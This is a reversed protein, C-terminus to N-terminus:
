TQLLNYLSVAKPLPSGSSGVPQAADDLLYICVMKLACVLLKCPLCAPDLFIIGEPIAGEPVKPVAILAPVDDGAATQGMTSIAHM